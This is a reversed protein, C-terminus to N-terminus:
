FKTIKYPKQSKHYLYDNSLTSVTENKANEIIKYYITKYDM